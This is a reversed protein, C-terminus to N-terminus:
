QDVSESGVEKLGVIKALWLKESRQEALFMELAVAEPDAYPDKGWTKKMEEFLFKKTVEICDKMHKFFRFIEAVQFCNPTVNKVIVSTPDM